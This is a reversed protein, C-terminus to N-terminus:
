KIDRKKFLLLGGVFFASAYIINNVVETWFSAWTITTLSGVTMEYSEGDIVVTEKINESDFALISHFPNIAKLFSAVGKMVQGATGMGESDLDLLSVVSAISAMGSCILLLVIVVPISPGIHRFLTSFFITSSAIVVYALVALILFKTLFGEKMTGAVLSSITMASGHPDFGGFACGLGFSILVYATILGLTYVLGTLFLGVYVKTKSYGSVIKNRITGNSFELVTFTILNIPIALGFNQTPSVSMILLGQGTAMTHQINSLDGDIASIGVDILFLILPILIAFGLGIFMTIRCSIDKRIKFFFAKFINKM